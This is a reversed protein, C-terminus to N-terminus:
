QVEKTLPCDPAAKYGYYYEYDFYSPCSGNWDWQCGDNL